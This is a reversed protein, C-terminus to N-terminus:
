WRTASTAARGPTSTALRPSTPSRSCARRRPAARTLLGSFFRPHAVLGRQTLGGSTSLDLQGSALDLGSSRAYSYAVVTDTM